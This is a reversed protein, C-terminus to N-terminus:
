SFMQEQLLRFKTEVISQFQCNELLDLKNNMKNFVKIYCAVCSVLDNVCLVLHTNEFYKYSINKRLISCFTWKM